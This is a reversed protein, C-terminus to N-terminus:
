FSTVMDNAHRMEAYDPIEPLRKINKKMGPSFGCIHWDREGSSESRAYVCYPFSLSLGFIICKAGRFVDAHSSHQAYAILVLDRKGFDLRIELITLYMYKSLIMTLSSSIVWGLFKQDARELSESMYVSLSHRILKFIGKSKSGM